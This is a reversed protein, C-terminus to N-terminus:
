FTGIRHFVDGTIDRKQKWVRLPVVFAGATSRKLSFVRLQPFIM